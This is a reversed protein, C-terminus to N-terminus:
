GPGSTVLFPRNASRRSAGFGCRRSELDCRVLRHTMGDPSTAIAFVTRLSSEVFGAESLTGAAVVLTTRHILKRGIVEFLSLRNRQTLVIRNRRWDGFTATAPVRDLVAGSDLDMLKLDRKSGDGTDSVLIRDGTPSIAIPTGDSLERIAAPRDAVLTEPYEGPGIRILVLRAGAWGFVVYRATETAWRRPRTDGSLRRVFVHGRLAAGTPVLRSYALADDSRWAASTTGPGLLLERRSVRDVVRVRNRAVLGGRAGGASYALYRGTRTETVVPALGLFLPASPLTGLRMIRRGDIGLLWRDVVLHRVLLADGAGATVDPPFVAGDARSTGTDSPMTTRAPAALGAGSAVVAGLLAVTGVLGVGAPIPRCISRARRARAPNPERM